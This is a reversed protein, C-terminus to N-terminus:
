VDASEVRFRFAARWLAAIAARTASVSWRVTFLLPSCSFAPWNPVISTVAEVTALM